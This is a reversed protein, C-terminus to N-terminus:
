PEPLSKHKRTRIDAGSLPKIPGGPWFVSEDGGGELMRLGGDCNLAETEIISIPRKLVQRYIRGVYLSLIGICLSLLSFSLLQFIVITAFGPQRVGFRVTMVLYWIALLVSAGLGVGALAVSIYLPRNSSQLIGDLAMSFYSRLTFSSQGAVRADRDYEIGRSEFGLNAILGRLYPHYDNVQCIIDIIRRDILRFDGAHPPIHVDSLFDVLSYFASRVKRMLWPERRNRRIGFVVKYGERWLRVFDIILEPPDELDCDIQVCADGKVWRYGTIVSRQFGVDRSLRYARVRTDLRVYHLLKEFTTDRSCNDVFVVETLCHEDREIQALVPLLRAMFADVTDQENHVPVFISLLKPPESASM